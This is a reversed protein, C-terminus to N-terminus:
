ASYYDSSSSILESIILLRTYKAYIDDITFPGIKHSLSHAYAFQKFTPNKPGSTTLQRYVQPHLKVM